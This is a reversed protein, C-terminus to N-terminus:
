DTYFILRITLDADVRRGEVERPTIRFYQSARVAAEGYGQSSQGLWECRRARGTETITCRILAWGRPLAGERRPYFWRTEQRTPQRIWRPQWGSGDGARLEQGDGSGAGSGSGHGHGGAGDAAQGGGGGAIAATPGEQPAAQAPAPVTPTPPAEPVTRVLPAPLPTEAPAARMEQSGAAAPSGGGAETEATPRMPQFPPPPASLDIPLADGVFRERLEARYTWLVAVLALHFVVSFAVAWVFRRSRRESESGPEHLPPIGLGAALATM